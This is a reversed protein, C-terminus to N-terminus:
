WVRADSIDAENDSEVPVDSESIDDQLDLEKIPEEDPGDSSSSEYYTTDTIPKIMFDAGKQLIQGNKFIVDRSLIVKDETEIWVRCGDKESCYGVVYGLVSKTDWKRRCAKPVHVYCETGFVRFHDISEYQKGSWMEMPTKDKVTSLGTRNIVYAATNVAEAHSEGKEDIDQIAEKLCLFYKAGGVSDKQMPGCVDGYILEGVNQPRNKRENFSNRHQKGYVCNECFEEEEQVEIEYKKLIKTVHRKNQHCLREHWLQVTDQMSAVFVRCATEPLCVHMALVYLGNTSRKGTMKVISDKVLSCGNQDARFHYGKEITQGRVFMEVNIIGHGYALVMKNNGVQVQKPVIFAKYTLFYQKKSTMHVSAGSDAIWVDSEAVGEVECIFAEGSPKTGKKCSVSSSSKRKPCDKAYHGVGRCKFCKQKSKFNNNENKSYKKNESNAVLAVSENQKSPLRM